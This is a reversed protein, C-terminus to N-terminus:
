DREGKNMKPFNDHLGCPQTIIVSMSAISDSSIIRYVSFSGVGLVDLQISALLTILPHPKMRCLTIRMRWYSPPLDVYTVAKNNSPYHKHKSCSTKFIIVNRHRKM